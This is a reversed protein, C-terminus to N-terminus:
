QRPRPNAEWGNCEAALWEPEIISYSGQSTGKWEGISVHTRGLAEEFMAYRVADGSGSGESWWFIVTSVNPLVGLASPGDYDAPWGIDHRHIAVVGDSNRRIKIEDVFCYWRPEDDTRPFNGFAFRAGIPAMGSMPGPDNM